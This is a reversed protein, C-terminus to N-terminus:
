CTDDMRRASVRIIEANEVEVSLTMSQCCIQCDEQYIQNEYLADVNIECREGCYPCRIKHFSSLPVLKPDSGAEYVPELGYLL